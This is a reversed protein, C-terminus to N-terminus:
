HAIRHRAARRLAVATIAGCVLVSGAVWVPTLAGGAALERYAQAPWWSPVPALLWQGIGSGPVVAPLVLVVFSLKVAAFGRLTDAAWAALAMATAGALPAAALAVCCVQAIGMTGLGGLWLCVTCACGAGLTAGVARWALYGRLSVPTVALADWVRDEKEGLLM